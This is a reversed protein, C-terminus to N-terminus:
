RVQARSHLGVAHCCITSCLRVVIVGIDFDLAAFEGTETSNLHRISSTATRSSQMMQCGHRASPPCYAQLRIAATNPGPHSCSSHLLTMAHISGVVAPGQLLALAAELSLALPLIHM